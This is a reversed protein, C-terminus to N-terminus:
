NEKKFEYSAMAYGSDEWKKLTARDCSKLGAPMNPPTTREVWRVATPFPKEGVKNIEKGLFLEMPPRSESPNTLHLCDITHGVQLPRNPKM